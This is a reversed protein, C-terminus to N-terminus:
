SATSLTVNGLNGAGTSHVYISQFPKLRVALPIVIAVNGATGSCNLRALVDSTPQATGIQSAPSMSLEIKGAATSLFSFVAARLTGSETAQIATTATGGPLDAIYNRMACIRRAPEM